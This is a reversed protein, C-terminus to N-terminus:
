KPATASLELAFQEYGYIDSNITIGDDMLRAANNLEKFQRGKYRLLHGAKSRISEFWSDFKKEFELMSSKNTFRTFIGEKITSLSEVVDNKELNALFYNKVIQEDNEISNFISKLYRDSLHQNNQVFSNLTEDSFNYMKVLYSEKLVSFIMDDDYQERLKLYINLFDEVLYAKQAENRLQEIPLKGKFLSNMLGLCISKKKVILLFSSPNRYQSSRSSCSNISVILTLGLFIISRKLKLNIIV